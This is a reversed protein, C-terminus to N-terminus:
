GQEDKCIVHRTFAGKGDNAFWYLVNNTTDASVLDLRGDGDFDAAAIGFGYGYKDQILHETFRIPGGGAKPEAVTDDGHLFGFAPLLALAFLSFRFATQHDRTM